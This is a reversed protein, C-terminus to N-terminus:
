DPCPRAEQTPLSVVFRAGGAAGDEARVTGDLLRVHRAVLSLGLGAGATSDRGSRRGRAFREFIRERETEDLGPGADEVSLRVWRDEAHLTLRTLGRGHREANDVLNMVVQELRRKDVCAVVGQAAPTVVLRDRLSSPVTQSLLDALVVPEVVLDASGADSRSIELLDEVLRAFRSVEARLLDLAERSHPPMSGRHPELLDVANLMTTLPSRLEHSVDAAFQADARVRRELAAATENFSAAISELDPDGRPDLRAGVEGAAVAAAATAVRDLPQLAPRLAWWGLVLSGLPVVVVGALLVTSLTRFTQDLEDLSFVEFYADGVSALPAGVALMPRGGVDFRQSAPEGAVVAERLEAPVSTRDVELSTTFWQGDTRLLSTSGIERPLQALLAPVSVDEGPLGRSLQDVHRVTQSLAAKERQGLLYGSVTAWVTTAVATSLIVAM